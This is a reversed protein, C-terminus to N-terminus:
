QQIALAFAGDWGFRHVQEGDGILRTEANAVMFRRRFPAYVWFFIQWLRFEVSLIVQKERWM